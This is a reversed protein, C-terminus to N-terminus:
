AAEVLRLNMAKKMTRRRRQCTHRPRGYAADSGARRRNVIRTAASPGAASSHRFIGGSEGDAALRAQAAPMCRRAPACSLCNRQEHDRHLLNSRKAPLPLPARRMTPAACKRCQGVQGVPLLVVSQSLARGGAFLSYKSVSERLHSLHVCINKRACRRHEPKAAVMAAPLRDSVFIMQTYRHEDAHMQTLFRAYQLIRGRGCAM